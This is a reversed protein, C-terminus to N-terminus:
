WVWEFAEEVDDLPEIDVDLVGSPEPRDGCWETLTSGPVGVPADKGELMRKARPGGNVNFKPSLSGDYSCAGGGKPLGLGNELLWPEEMKKALLFFFMKLPGM